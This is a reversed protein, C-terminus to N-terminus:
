PHDGKPSTIRGNEVRLGEHRLLWAKTRIGEPAAFGRLAGDSGVVRHCPFFLLLPNRALASGVARSAKPSGMSEALQAYSLTNGWPIAACALLVRTQFAPLGSLDLPLSFSQRTGHFYERLQEVAQKLLPAEPHASFLDESPLDGTSGLFASRRLGDPSSQLFLLGVPTMVNIASFSLAHAM